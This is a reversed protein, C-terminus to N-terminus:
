QGVKITNYITPIFYNSLSYTHVGVKFLEIFIIIIFSISIVVKYDMM